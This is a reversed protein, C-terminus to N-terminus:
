FILSSGRNKISAIFNIAPVIYLISIFAFPFLKLFIVNIFDYRTFFQKINCIFFPIFFIETFFFYWRIRFSIDGVSSLLISVFAGILYILCMQKILKDPEMKIYIFAAVVCVILQKLSLFSVDKYSSYVEFKNILFDPLLPLHSLYQIPLAIKFINIIIVVLLLGYILKNKM